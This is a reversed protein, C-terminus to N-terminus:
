SPNALQSLMTELTMKLSHILPHGIFPLRQPNGAQLLEPYKNLLQILEAIARTHQGLHFYSVCRALEGWHGFYQIREACALAQPYDGGNFYHLFLPIHYWDPANFRIDLLYTISELFGTKDGLFFLGMAYMFEGATDFPNAQRAIELEARCLTLDGRYYANHAFVSHAEANGPDLKMAMRVTQTWTQELNSVQQYHLVHDYGCLRALIILAKSDDPCQHLRQQCASLALTFSEPSINRLFNLYCALAIHSAPITVPQNQLYRAWHRLVLGSHVSVTNASVEHCIRQIDTQQLVPPLSVISQWVIEDTLTHALMFSLEFGDPTSSINGNLIYDAQYEAHINHLDQRTLPQGTEQLASSVLRINRFRSLALLLEGHIRYLSPHAADTQPLTQLYLLLRPGETNGTTNPLSSPALRPIRTQELLRFEAQYAGKPILIAVQSNHGTSHYHTELLKRLRGAEIRVIPNYVPSFDPPKGLGHVAINYQNLEGGNGTLTEEVVYRLFKKILKRTRIKPNALLRELEARILTSDPKM